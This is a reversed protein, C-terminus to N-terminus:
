ELLVVATLHIEELLPVVVLVLMQRHLMLQKTLLVVAVASLLLQQSYLTQAEVEVLLIPLLHLVVLVL